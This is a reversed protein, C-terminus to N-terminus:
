RYKKSFAKRVNVKKHLGKKKTRLHNVRSRRKRFGGHNTNFSNYVKIVEDENYYKISSIKQQIKPDINTYSLLKDNLKQKLGALDTTNEYLEKEDMSFYRMLYKLHIFSLFITPIISRHVNIDGYFLYNSTEELDEKSYPFNPKKFKVYYPVLEDREPKILVLKDNHVNFIHNLIKYGMKGGTYQNNACLLSIEIINSNNYPLMVLAYSVITNDVLIYYLYNYMRLTNNLMRLSSFFEDMEFIKENQYVCLNEKSNKYATLFRNKDNDNSSSVLEDVTYQEM